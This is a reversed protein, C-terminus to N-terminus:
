KIDFTEHRNHGENYSIHVWSFDFENIAQDFELGSTLLLDMLKDNHEEGNIIWEVDAAQGKVHQSTPKGGVAQNLRECRYGSSIRLYGEPLMDRLPQLVEECLLKLNDVVEDPPSFQEHFGLRTATNSKLFESLMFNTSLQM